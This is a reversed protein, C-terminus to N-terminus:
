VYPYRFTGKPMQERSFASQIRAADGRVDWAEVAGLHSIANFTLTWGGGPQEVLRPGDCLRRLLEESQPTRLWSKFPGHKGAPLERSTVMGKPGALFVRVLDALREPTLEGPLKVQEGNLFRNLESLDDVSSSFKPKDPGFAVVGDREFDTVAFVRHHHLWPFRSSLDTARVYEAPSGWRTAAIAIAEFEKSSATM